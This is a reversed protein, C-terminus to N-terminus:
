LHSMEAVVVAVAQTVNVTDETPHKRGLFLSPGACAPGKEKRGARVDVGLM